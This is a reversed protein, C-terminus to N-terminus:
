ARAIGYSTKRLEEEVFSVFARAKASARHGGPLVAWLDLPEMELVLITLNSAVGCGASAVAFLSIGLILTRRRGIRDGLGGEFLFLATLPLLYGNIVWQLGVAGGALERELAPLGVNVVSGDM